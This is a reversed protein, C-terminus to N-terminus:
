LHCILENYKCFLTCIVFVNLLCLLLLYYTFFDLLTFLSVFQEFVSTHEKLSLFFLVLHLLTFAYKNESPLMKQPVRVPGGEPMPYWSLFLICHLTLVM